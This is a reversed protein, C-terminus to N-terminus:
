FSVPCGYIMERLSRPHMVEREVEGTYRNTITVSYSTGAAGYEDIHNQLGRLAAIHNSVVSFSIRAVGAGGTVLVDRVMYSGESGLWATLSAATLVTPARLFHEPMGNAVVGGSASIANAGHITGFYGDAGGVCTNVNGGSVQATGGVLHVFGGSGSGGNSM